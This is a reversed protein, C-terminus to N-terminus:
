PAMKMTISGIAKVCKIKWKGYKHYDEDIRGEAILKGNDDYGKYDTIKGIPAKEGQKQSFAILNILCISILLFQKKM